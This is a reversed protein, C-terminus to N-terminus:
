HYFLMVVLLRPNNSIICAFGLNFFGIVIKASQEATFLLIQSQKL